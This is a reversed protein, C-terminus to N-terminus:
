HNSRGGLLLEKTLDGYFPDLFSGSSKSFPGLDVSGIHTQMKVIVRNTPVKNEYVVFPAADSIYHQGNIVKNSIGYEIGEETRYSTWYKFYDDKDPMYYRPRDAMNTNTHHIYSNRLYKAKNIGSRPRFKSFCNELSYFLKVKDKKPTLTIPQNLDDVGGDLSIDADTAGYYFKVASFENENMDFSNILSNYISSPEAPRYRYNGIKKINNPINMNWEAIVASQTRIVSSTELHNKLEDNQFM